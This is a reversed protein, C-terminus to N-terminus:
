ALDAHLQRVAGSLGADSNLAQEVKRCAHLVTSHDRGGFYAGIQELSLDTLRRALYMGVQRPVLVERSRRASCLEAPKVQFYRGVRQVIRDISLSHGAVDECLATDLDAPEAPRGIAASLGELRTLTGDLQRPSGPTHAALWDLVAPALTMERQLGRERLFELRSDPSLAELATTLGQGLRSTLRAPLHTLQAPGLTATLVLQRQRSLCHDVLRALALAGRAPLQQVDEILFLDAEKLNPGEEEAGGVLDAACLASVVVDPSRRTLEHVLDTTLYTKGSGPPGTIFLPNIAPRATRNCLCELVRDVARKAARNEPLLIWRGRMHM